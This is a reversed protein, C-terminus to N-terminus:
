MRSPPPLRPPLADSRGPMPTTCDQIRKDDVRCGSDAFIAIQDVQAPITAPISLGAIDAETLGTPLPASCSAGHRLGPCRHRRTAARDDPDDSQRAIGRRSLPCPADIPVLARAVLQSESVDKPSRSHLRGAPCACQRHGGPGLSSCRARSRSWWTGIFWYAIRM